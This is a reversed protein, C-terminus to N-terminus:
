KNMLTLLVVGKKEGCLCDEFFTSSPPLAFLKKNESVQASGKIEEKKKEM